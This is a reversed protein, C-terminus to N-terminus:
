RTSRGRTWRPHGTPPWPAPSAAAVSGLIGGFSGEWTKKPSIPSFPTKGIFSGVIYAMTDNMWLMLVLSLPLVISQMRLSYLLIMPLVIYAMGALSQIGAQLATKKHLTTLLLILVPAFMLLQSFRVGNLLPTELLLWLLRRTLLDVVVENLLQVLDDRRM